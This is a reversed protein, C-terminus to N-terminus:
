WTVWRRWRSGNRVMNSPMSTLASPLAARSTVNHLVNQKVNHPVHRRASRSMKRMSRRTDRALRNARWTLDPRGETDAAALLLGGLVGMNKLFHMQHVRRQTPDSLTWFAHAALTTPVMSAALALAAPRRVRGATLLLGGALQLAGNLRVLTPVQAPLRPYRQELTAVRDTVPKTQSVLKEPSVVAGIGGSVFTAGLLCRASKRLPRM